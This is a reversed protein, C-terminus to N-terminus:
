TPNVVLQNGNFYYVPHVDFVTMWDGTSDKSMHFTGVMQIKLSQCEDAAPTRFTLHRVYDLAAEQDQPTVVTAGAVYANSAFGNNDVVFRVKLQVAVRNYRADDIEFTPVPPTENIEPQCRAQVEHSNARPLAVRPTAASPSAAPSPGDNGVPSAPLNVVGPHRMHMFWAVLAVASLAYIAGRLVPNAKWFNV